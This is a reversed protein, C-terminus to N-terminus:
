RVVDFVTEIVPKARDLRAGIKALKPDVPGNTGGASEPSPPVTADLHALYRDVAAPDVPAAESREGASSAVLGAAGLGAM